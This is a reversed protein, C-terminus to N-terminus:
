SDSCAQIDKRRDNIWNLMFNLLVVRYYRNDM